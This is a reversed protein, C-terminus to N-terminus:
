VTVTRPQYAWTTTTTATTTTTTTATSVIIGMEELVHQIAFRSPPKELEFDFNEASIKMNTAMRTQPVLMELLSGLWLRTGDNIMQHAGVVVLVGHYDIIIPALLVLLVVLM